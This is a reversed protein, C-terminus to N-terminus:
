NDNKNSVEFYAAYIVASLTANDFYSTNMSNFKNILKYICDIETYSNESVRDIYALVFDYIKRHEIQKMDKFLDFSDNFNNEFRDHEKMPLHLKPALENKHSRWFNFAKSQTTIINFADNITKSTLIKKPDGFSLKNGQNFSLEIGRFLDLLVTYAASHDQVQKGFIESIKGILNEKQNKFTKALDIYMFSLSSIDEKTLNQNDSLSKLGNLIKDKLNDSLNGYKVISNTENIKISSEKNEKKKGKNDPDLKILSNSVFFNEQAFSINRSTLEKNICLGAEKIKNLIVYLEATLSWTASSKKAQYTQILEYNTNDSDFFCFMFDDYSEISIFYNKSNWDGYNDLLLYLACHKQFEFGTVAHIGSNSAPLILIEDSM